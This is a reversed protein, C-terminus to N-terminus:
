VDELGINMLELNECRYQMEVSMAAGFKRLIILYLLNSNVDVSHSFRASSSAIRRGSVGPPDAAPFVVGSM